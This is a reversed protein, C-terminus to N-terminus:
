RSAPSLVARARSAGSQGFVGLLAALVVATLLVFLVRRATLEFANSPDRNRVLTLYEPTDPM